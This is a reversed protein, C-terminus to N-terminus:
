NGSPLDPFCPRRISAGHATYHALSCCTLLFSEDLGHHPTGVQTASCPMVTASSATSKLPQIQNSNYQATKGPIAENDHMAKQTAQFHTRAVSM